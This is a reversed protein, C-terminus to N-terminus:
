VGEAPSGTYAGNYIDVDEFFIDTGADDLPCYHDVTAVHQYFHKNYHMNAFNM